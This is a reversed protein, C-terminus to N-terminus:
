NWGLKTIAAAILVGVLVVAALWLCGRENDACTKCEENRCLTM